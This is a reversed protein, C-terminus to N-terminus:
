KTSCCGELCRIWTTEDDWLWRWRVMGPIKMNPHSVRQIKIRKESAGTLYRAVWSGFLTRRLFVHTPINARMGFMTRYKAHDKSIIMTGVYRWEKFQNKHNLDGLNPAPFIYGVADSLTVPVTATPAAAPQALVQTDFYGRVRHAAAETLTIGPPPAATLWGVPPAPASKFGPMGIECWRKLCAVGVYQTGHGPDWEWRAARPIEDAPNTPRVGAELNPVAPKAIDALCEANYGINIVHARKIPDSLPVYLCSFGPTLRLPPYPVNSNALTGFNHVVAVLYYRSSDPVAPFNAQRAFVAVVPGYTNKPTILQQCDNFEPINTGADVLPITIPTTSIVGHDLRPFFQHDPCEPRNPPAEYTSSGGLSLTMAALVVGPLYRLM